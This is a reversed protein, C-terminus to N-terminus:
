PAARRLSLAGAGRPVLPQRRKRRIQVAPEPLGQSERQRVYVGVALGGWLWLDSNDQIAGSFIANVLASLFLAILLTVELQLRAHTRRWLVILRRMISTAMAIFAVVGVIGLEAAVELLINHPYFELDYAAFGGTGIGALPHAGFASYAKAWLASRGNSSLGSSNGLITSLSRGISSGPVVVPILIAAAIVVAGVAVLRRRSRGVTTTLGVLAILGVIFAVTPGRSGAAILSILLLPLSCMATVRVWRNTSAMILCIAILAGNSSSRGLNIAGQQASITFRGGYQQTASGTVLGILLAVAGIATIALTVALFLRLSRERVGVFVAGVLFVLNDAIYLQVKQSGYHQDLSTNLRLLMLGAILFAMAVPLTMLGRVGLDQERRMFVMAVGLLIWLAVLFTAGGKPLPNTGYIATLLTPFSALALPLAVSRWALAVAIVAVFLLIAITPQMLVPALV